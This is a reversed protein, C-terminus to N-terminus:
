QPRLSFSNTAVVRQAVEVLVFPLSVLLLSRARSAVGISAAGRAVMWVFLLAWCISSFSPLDLSRNPVCSHPEPISLVTQGYGWGSCAYDM